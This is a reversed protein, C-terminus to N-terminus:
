NEYLCIFNYTANIDVPTAHKCDAKPGNRDHNRKEEKKEKERNDM